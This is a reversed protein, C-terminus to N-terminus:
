ALVLCVDLIRKPDIPLLYTNKLNNSCSCSLRQEREIGYDQDLEAFQGDLVDIAAYILFFTGDSGTLLRYIYEEGYM